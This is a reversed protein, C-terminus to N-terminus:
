MRQGKRGKLEQRTTYPSINSQSRGRHRTKKEKNWFHAGFHCHYNGIITTSGRLSFAPKSNSCSIYYKIPNLIGSIPFHEMIIYIVFFSFMFTKFDTSDIDLARFLIRFISESYSLSSSRITKVLSLRLMVLLPGVSLIFYM